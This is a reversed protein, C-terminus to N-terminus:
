SSSKNIIFESMLMEYLKHDHWKGNKFFDERLLGVFHFGLKEIVRESRVNEVFHRITIKHLGLIDFAFQLVAQAAEVIIGQGWFEKGLWYGLEASNVIAAQLSKQIHDLGIVGCFKEQYFIAWCIGELKQLKKQCDQLFEKTIDKNEHASWSMYLPIEPDTVYPWLMEVDDIQLPRLRLRSIQLLFKKQPSNHLM